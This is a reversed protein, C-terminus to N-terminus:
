DFLDRSVISNETMIGHEYAYDMMESLVTELEDTEMTVDTDNEELEDLQFLELLRNITYIKDAEEILGTKLGYAVLKKINTQIM